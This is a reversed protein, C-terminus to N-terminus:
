LCANCVARVDETSGAAKDSIGAATLLAKKIEARPGMPAAHPDLHISFSPKRTLSMEVDVPKSAMGVERVIDLFQNTELVGVKSRSNILSSRLGM